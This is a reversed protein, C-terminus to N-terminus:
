DQPKYYFRGLLQDTRIVNTFAKPDVTRIRKMVAARDPSSIVSYVVKKEGHDHSGEGDLITAGHHCIEYIASCIEQAMDTVILLTQQQYRKYMIHLMQTSAYQFIISYLAKEWGFLLGAALLIVANIGLIVNWTDMGRKESLYISIFDTGGSTAGARLCLSIAFGNILGGFVSVLLIDNTIPRSPIIDTLVNTLMIMILSYLTFKKGIFRFGIYVPGANLLVNIVTYPLEIGFHMQAFRQILITLGSAGGPYLGGAHVFTKINVAVIVSAAMIVAIRGADSRMAKRIRENM